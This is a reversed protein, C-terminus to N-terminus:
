AISSRNEDPVFGNLNEERENNYSLLDDRVGATPIHGSERPRFFVNRKFLQQIIRQM